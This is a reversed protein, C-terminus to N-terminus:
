PQAAERLEEEDPRAAYQNAAVQKTTGLSVVTPDEAPRGTRTNSWGSPERLSPQGRLARAEGGTLVTGATRAEGGPTRHGKLSKPPLTRIVRTQRVRCTGDAPNQGGEVTQEGTVQRDGPGDGSM